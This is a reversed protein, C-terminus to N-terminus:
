VLCTSSSASHVCGCRVAFALVPAVCDAAGASSSGARAAGDDALRRGLVIEFTLKGTLMSAIM